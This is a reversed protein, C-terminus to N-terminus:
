KNTRGRNDPEIGGQPTTDNLVDGEVTNEGEEDEFVTERNDIKQGQGIGPNRKLDKDAPEPTTFRQQSTM